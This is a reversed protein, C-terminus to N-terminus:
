SITPKTHMLKALMEEVKDFDLPKSLHGNMGSEVSKKMDEDFANASMAVIPISAAQPHKSQRIVRAAELGDMNPMRIDTLILDFTNPPSNLFIDVEERGDRATTIKAGKMELIECAIEINLENDEALLIRMGELIPKKPIDLPKVEKNEPPQTMPLRVTFYFDSGQNPTSDLQIAGGMMRVLSSSIALGLGTGGYNRATSSEAQEFSQFIRTQNEPSVGIGTDKVSFTVDGNEEQRVTLTIKGGKPTFKVANGLLNVLVQKLHLSDGKVWPQIIQTKMQYELQKELTQPRILSSVECVVANLHFVTQEMALKGSEIRSMDLIDNILGLLYHASEDIKDLDHGIMDAQQTHTKAIYTMGIIANMPTRIEHSMHSLFDSKARSAADYRRRNINAEIVKATETLDQIEANKWDAQEPTRLFVVAGMYRGNDHLPFVLGIRNNPIFLFSRQQETLGSVEWCDSQKLSNELEAFSEQTMHQVTSDATQEPDRHWQYAAKATFFTHDVETLLIDSANTERGLTPLLMSLIPKLEQEKDFFAFTLPVIGHHTPATFEISSVQSVSPDMPQLQCDESWVIMQGSTKKAEALAAATRNFLLEYSEGSRSQSAGYLLKATFSGSYLTQARQYLEQAATQATLRDCDELWLLMEDGGLRLITSHLETHEAKWQLLLKGIEELVVNGAVMGLERNLEMLGCIDLILLCGNHGDRMSACIISEGSQRRYLGTLADRHYSEYEALEQLKAAHINRMAGIFTKSREGDAPLVRGNMEYWVYGEPNEPWDSRFAISVDQDMDRIAAIVVRRDDPHIHEVIKQLFADSTIEQSAGDMNYFVATDQEMDYTILIDSSSQLALRYREKEETLAHENKRQLRTLHVITDYLEEIEAINSHQYRELNEMFNGHLCDSLRYVPRTISRTFVFSFVLGILASLLIALLFIVMLHDNLGFLADRSMVGAIYWIQHSFPTNNNYLHLPQMIMYATSDSQEDSLAYLNETGSATLPVTDMDMTLRTVFAGSANLVKPDKDGEAMLLMYGGQQESSVESDPMKETLYSLSIEVGMVGYVTGDETMLPVSYSIMRYPDNQVTGLVFSPSWYCLNNINQGPNNLGAIYPEYFFGDAKRTGHPQLELKSKWGVGLPIHYQKILDSPGFMLQCDSYDGPNADPDSDRLYLANVKGGETSNEPQALVLFVGTVSNKRMMYIWEPTIDSLFEQQLADNNLFDQVSCNNQTLLADLQTNANEYEEDVASWQRMQNQLMIQRTNVTQQLREVASDNLATFTGGLVVTGFSILAQISVMILLPILFLWFIRKPQKTRRM